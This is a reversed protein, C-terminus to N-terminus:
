ETYAGYWSIGELYQGATEQTLLKGNVYVNVLFVQYADGGEGVSILKAGETLTFECNSIFIAGASKRIIVDHDLVATVNYLGLGVNETHVIQAEDSMYMDKYLVVNTGAPFLFDEELPAPAVTIPATVNQLGDIILADGAKVYGCINNYTSNVVKCDNIIISATGTYTAGLIGGIMTDYSAGFSGNQSITTNEVICNKIVHEGAGLTVGVLGGLQAYGNVKTNKVSCDSIEAAYMQGVLGGIQWNYFTVSANPYVIGEVCPILKSLTSM